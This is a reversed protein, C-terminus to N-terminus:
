EEDELPGVLRTQIEIRKEIDFEEEIETLLKERMTGNLKAFDRTGARMVGERYGDASPTVEMDIGVPLQDIVQAQTPAAGHRMMARMLIAAIGVDEKIQEVGLAM